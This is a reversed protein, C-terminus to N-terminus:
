KVEEVKEVDCKCEHPMDLYKNSIGIAGILQARQNMLEEIQKNTAELNTKLRELEIHFIQKM